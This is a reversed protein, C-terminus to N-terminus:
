DVRGLNFFDCVFEMKPTGKGPARHVEYQTYRSISLYGGRRQGCENSNYPISEVRGGEEKDRVGRDGQAFATYTEVRPSSHGSGAIVRM